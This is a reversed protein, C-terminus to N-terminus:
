PIKGDVNEWGNKQRLACIIDSESMQGSTFEISTRGIGEQTVQFQKCNSDIINKRGQEALKFCCFRDFYKGKPDEFPLYEPKGEGTMNYGCSLYKQSVNQEKKKM